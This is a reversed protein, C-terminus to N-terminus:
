VDRTERSNLRTSGTKMRRLESFRTRHTNQTPEGETITVACELDEEFLYKEKGEGPERRYPGRLFESWEIVSVLGTLSVMGWFTARSQGGGDKPYKSYKTAASRKLSEICLGATLM